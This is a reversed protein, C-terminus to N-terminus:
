NILAGTPGFRLYTGSGIINVRANQNTYAHLVEDSGDLEGISGTNDTFVLWGKDWRVDSACSAGDASACLSVPINRSVAVARAINVHAALENTASVMRNNAVFDVFSPVAVGILVGGLAITVMLELITFGVSKTRVM